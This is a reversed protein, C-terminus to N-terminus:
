QCIVFRLYSICSSNNACPFVDINPCAPLWKESRASHHDLLIILDNCVESFSIICAVM